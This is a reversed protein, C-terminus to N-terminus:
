IVLINNQVNAQHFGQTSNHRFVKLFTTNTRKKYLPINIKICSKPSKRMFSDVLMM